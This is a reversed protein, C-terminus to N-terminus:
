RDFDGYGAATRRQAGRAYDLQPEIEDVRGELFLSEPVWYSLRDDGLQVFLKQPADQERWFVVREYQNADAWQIVRAVVEQVQAGQAAAGLQISREHDRFEVKAM